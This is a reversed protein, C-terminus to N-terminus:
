FGSEDGKGFLSLQKFKEPIAKKNKEEQSRQEQKIKLQRENYEQLPKSTFYRSNHRIAKYWKNSFELQHVRADDGLKSGPKEM